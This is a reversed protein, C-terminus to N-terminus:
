KDWARLLSKRRKHFERMHMRQEVALKESLDHAASPYRKEGLLVQQLQWADRLDGLCTQLARLQKIQLHRSGLSSPPLEECLYRMFKIKLRLRHLKFPTKCDRRLAKLLRRRRKEFQRGALAEIRVQPAATLLADDALERLSKIRASWSAASLHDNLARAARARDRVRHAYIGTIAPSPTKNRRRSLKLIELEAVDAERVADLYHGIQRLAEIHRDVAAPAVARLYVRLLVRLRRATVRADHVLAPTAARDFAAVSQDLSALLAELRDRLKIRM